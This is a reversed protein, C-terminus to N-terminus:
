AAYVRRHEVARPIMRTPTQRWYYKAWRGPLAIRTPFLRKALLEEVTLRHDLLGLRMAPSAGRKRESFPKIYNRWALMVFLREAASQRRKSFAITERKHNASSHRILGDLLNVAFLPNKPTRAERSSIPDHDFAIHSLRKLARPYDQHDDSHLKVAGTRVLAIQLLDVVEKEVSRPDPRGHEKELRARKKKQEATMSGSRRLESETFGYFFHSTKGALLHFGTPHYQSYEFSVFTDLVLPETIPGKPRMQEHFLLCHRGLRAAHTAITQPSVGFERAIQRFCSCGVLRHFIPVLLDPRRLWYSEEFTQASFHRRCHCCRFRQVRYPERQRRFYGDRVWHWSTTPGNHFACAPNPCFPPAPSAPANPM